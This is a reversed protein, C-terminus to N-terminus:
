WGIDLQHRTEGEAGARMACRAKTGSAAQTRKLNALEQPPIEPAFTSLHNCHSIILIIIASPFGKNYAM